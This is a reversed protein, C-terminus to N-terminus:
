IQDLIAIEINHYVIYSSPFSMKSSAMTFLNSVTRILIVQNLSRVDYFNYSDDVFPLLEHHCLAMYVM